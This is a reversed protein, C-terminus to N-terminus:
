IAAPLAPHRDLEAERNVSTPVAHRLEPRKWMFELSLELMRRGALREQKLMGARRLSAPPPAVGVALEGGEIEEIGDFGRQSM